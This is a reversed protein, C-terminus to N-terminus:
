FFGGGGVLGFGVVEEEGEGESDGDGLVWGAGGFFGGDGMGEVELGM